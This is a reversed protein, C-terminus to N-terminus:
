RWCRSGSRPMTCATWCTFAVLRPQNCVGHGFGNQAAANQGRKSPFPGCCHGDLIAAIAKRRDLESQPVQFGGAPRKSPQNTLGPIAIWRVTRQPVEGRVIVFLQAALQAAPYVLSNAGQSDLDACGSHSQIPDARRPLANTIRLEEEICIPSIVSFLRHAYGSLEQLVTHAPKSSGTLESSRCPCRSSRSRADAPICIAAPSYYSSAKSGGSSRLVPPRHLAPPHWATAASHGSKQVHGLLDVRESQRLRRVGRRRQV